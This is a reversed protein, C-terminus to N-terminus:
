APGGDEIEFLDDLKALVLVDRLETRAGRLRVVQRHAAARRRVMILTGLGASDVEKTATLDVVLRGAAEGFAELETMAARRFEEHTELDLREPAVLIRERKRPQAM